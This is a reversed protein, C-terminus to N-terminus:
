EGVVVERFAASDSGPGFFGYINRKKETVKRDEGVNTQRYRSM